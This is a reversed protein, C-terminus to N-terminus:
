GDLLRAGDRVTVVTVDRRAVLECIRQLRDPAYGCWPAHDQIQHFTLILWSRTEVARAILNEAAAPSTSALIAHSGLRWPETAAHNIKNNYLRAAAYGAAQVRVVAAESLRGFPYAFTAADIGLAVLDSRAGGIEAELREADCAPLEPHTRTHSGIEHDREALERWQDPSMRGEGEALMAESMRTIVYFTGRFGHEELIPAARTFANRWGDDFSFSILARDFM